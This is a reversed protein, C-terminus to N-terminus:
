FDLCHEIVYVYATEHGKFEWYGKVKKCLIGSDRILKIFIRALNSPFGFVKLHELYEVINKETSARDSKGYSDDRIPELRCILCSHRDKKSFNFKPSDIPELKCVSCTQEYKGSFHAKPSEVLNLFYDEYVDVIGEM